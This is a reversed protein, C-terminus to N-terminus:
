FYLLIYSGISNFYILANEDHKFNIIKKVFGRDKADNGEEDTKQWGANTDQTQRDENYDMFFALGLELDNEISHTKFQNPDVEYCIQDKLMKAQFSNCVPVDFQDIRVGM